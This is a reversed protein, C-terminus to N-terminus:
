NFQVVCDGAGGVGSSAVNIAKITYAGEAVQEGNKVEIVLVTDKGLKVIKADGVNPKQNAM